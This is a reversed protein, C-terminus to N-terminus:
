SIITGTSSTIPSSSIYQSETFLSAIKNKHMDPISIELPNEINLLTTNTTAKLFPKHLPHNLYEQNVIKSTKGYRSSSCVHNNKKKLQKMKIPPTYIKMNSCRPCTNPTYNTNNNNKTPEKTQISPTPYTSTKNNFSPNSSIDIGTQQSSITLPSM